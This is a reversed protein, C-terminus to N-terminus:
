LMNHMWTIFKYHITEEISQLIKATGLNDIM